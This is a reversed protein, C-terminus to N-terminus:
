GYIMGELEAKYDEMKNLDFDEIIMNYGFYKEVDQDAPCEPVNIGSRRVLLTLCREGYAEVFKKIEAGERCHIFITPNRHKEEAELIFKAARRFPRNGYKVLLNKVDHLINRFQDTKTDTMGMNHLIQKAEAITSHNLVKSATIKEFEKVFTDKGVSGAGNIIIINKM